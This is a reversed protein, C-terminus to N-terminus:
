RRQYESEQLLFPRHFFFLHEPDEIHADTKDQDYGLVKGIRNCLLQCFVALLDISYSSDGCTRAPYDEFLSHNVTFRMCLLPPSFHATNESYDRLAITYFGKEVARIIM